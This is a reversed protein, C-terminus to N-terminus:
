FIGDRWVRAMAQADTSPNWDPDLLVIRNAGILNLGVGGAKASLLFMFISSSPRNFRNVLELRKKTNTKGDLRLFTFGAVKGLREVVDLTKTFNSVVVVKDKAQKINKLLCNLVHLKGSEM